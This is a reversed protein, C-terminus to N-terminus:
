THQEPALTDENEVGPVDKAQLNSNLVQTPETSPAVLKVDKDLLSGIVSDAKSSLASNKSDFTFNICHSAGAGGNQRIADFKAAFRSPQPHKMLHKTVFENLRESPQFPNVQPQDFAQLGLDMLGPIPRPNWDQPYVRSSIGTPLPKDSYQRIQFGHQVSVNLYFPKVYMASNHNLHEYETRLEKHADILPQNLGFHPSRGQKDNGKQAM